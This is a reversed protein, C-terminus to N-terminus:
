SQNAKTLKEDYETCRLSHDSKMAKKTWGDEGEIHGYIASTIHVSTGKRCIDVNLNLRQKMAEANRCVSESMRINYSAIGAKKTPNSLAFGIAEM